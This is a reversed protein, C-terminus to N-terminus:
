LQFDRDFFMAQFIMKVVVLSFGNFHVFKSDFTVLRCDGNGSMKVVGRVKNPKLNQQSLNSM